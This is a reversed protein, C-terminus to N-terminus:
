GFKLIMGNKYWGLWYSAFSDDSNFSPFPTIGSRPSNQLQGSICHNTSWGLFFFCSLHTFCRLVFLGFSVRIHSNFRNISYSVVSVVHKSPFNYLKQPVSLKCSWQLVLTQDHPQQLWAFVYLHCLNSLFQHVFCLILLMMGQFCECNARWCTKKKKKKEEERPSCDSMVGIDGTRSLWWPMFRWAMFPMVWPKVITAWHLWCLMSPIACWLWKVRLGPRPKTSLAQSSLGKLNTPFSSTILVSLAASTLLFSTSNEWCFVQIRANFKFCASFRPFCCRNPIKTSSLSVYLSIAYVHYM